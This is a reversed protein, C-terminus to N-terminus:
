VPDASWSSMTCHYGSSFVSPSLQRGVKRCGADIMAVSVSVSVNCPFSYSMSVPCSLEKSLM